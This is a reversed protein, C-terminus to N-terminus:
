GQGEARLQAMISVAFARARAAKDVDMFATHYDLHREGYLGLWRLRAHKCTRRLGEQWVDAGKEVRYGCTTIAAVAKGEWLSPGKEGGGYYKCLAYICRDMAAKLPATCFWNYIPSALLVLDCGLIDQFIGTMDDDIVCGPATWDQQCGRCAMCPSIAEDYLSHCVFSHGATQWEDLFETLLARTNSEKGRPSAFLVCCKM